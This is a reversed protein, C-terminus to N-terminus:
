KQMVYSGPASPLSSDLHPSSVRRQSSNDVLWEHWALWWSGDRKKAKTMWKKPGM